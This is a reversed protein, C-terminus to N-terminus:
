DFFGLFSHFRYDVKWQNLQVLYQWIPAAIDTMSIRISREVVDESLFVAERCLTEKTMISM